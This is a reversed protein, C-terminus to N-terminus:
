FHSNTFKNINSFNSDRELYRANQRKLRRSVPPTFLETDIYRRKTDLYIKKSGAINCLDLVVSVVYGVVFTIIWGIVGYWLYSIKFLWFYEVDGNREVLS